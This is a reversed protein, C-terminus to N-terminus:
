GVAPTGLACPEKNKHAIPHSRLSHTVSLLCSRAGSPPPMSLGAARSKWLPFALRMKRLAKWFILVDMTAGSGDFHEFLTIM